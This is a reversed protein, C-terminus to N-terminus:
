KHSKTKTQQCKGQCTKHILVWIFKIHLDSEFVSEIKKRIIPSKGPNKSPSHSNSLTQHSSRNTKKILHNLDQRIEDEDQNNEPETLPHYSLLPQSDLAVKRQL